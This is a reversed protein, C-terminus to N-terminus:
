ALEILFEEKPLRFKKLKLLWDQEEMRYGLPLMVASKLGLKDLGLLEDLEANSFGEMPTADVGLEAAQAIALGFAIYAQKAAHAAQQEETFSALQGKLRNKYEDTTDLPLGRLTNMKDFTKDIREDTYRDWGAFVLLHSSDAVIQQGWAVPVIKEKLEQNTIVIVRFQQLGSSSPAMRAAELIKDLDEQAVKKTPDYKKTAYRWELTDLLAM